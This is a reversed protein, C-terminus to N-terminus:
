WVITQKDTVLETLKGVASTAVIYGSGVTGTKVYLSTGVVTAQSMIGDTSPNLWLIPEPASTKLTGGTIKVFGVDAIELRRETELDCIQSRKYKSILTTGKIFSSGVLSFSGNGDYGVSNLSGSVRVNTLVVNGNSNNITLIKCAINTIKVDGIPGPLSSDVIVDIDSDLNNIEIVGAQTLRIKSGRTRGNSLKISASLGSLQYMTVAARAGNMELDYNNINVRAGASLSGRIGKDINSGNVTEIVVDTAIFSQSVGKFIQLCSSECATERPDRAIIRIELGDVNCYGCAEDWYAGSGNNSFGNPDTHIIKINKGMATINRDPTVATSGYNTVFIDSHNFTGYTVICGFAGQPAVPDSRGKQVGDVTFSSPLIGCNRAVYSNLNTVGSLPISGGDIGHWFHIQKNSCNSFFMNKADIVGSTFVQLIVSYHCDKASFNEILVNSTLLSGGINIFYGTTPQISDYGFLETFKYWPELGPKSGRGASIRFNILRYEVNTNFKIKPQDLYTKGLILNFDRLCVNTSPNFERTTGDSLMTSLGSGTLVANNKVCFEIANYFPTIDNTVGDQKCGFQKLSVVEGFKTEIYIDSSLSFISGSDELHNGRKLVGWGDGGDGIAHYGNWRIETGPPLTNFNVKIGLNNMGERLETITNFSINSSLITIRNGLAEAQLNLAGGEGGVGESVNMPVDTWEPKFTLAGSFDNIENRLAMSRKILGALTLRKTGFRDPVEDQQSNVFNDVVESNDYLDLIDKSGLPNGTNHM